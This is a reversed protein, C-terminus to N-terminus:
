VDIFQHILLPYYKKGYVRLQAIAFICSPFTIASIAPTIPFIFRPYEIITAAGILMMIVYLALLCNAAVPSSNYTSSSIAFSSVSGAVLLSIPAMAIAGVPHRPCRNCCRTSTAPLPAASRNNVHYTSYYKIMVPLVFLLWGMAGVCWIAPATRSCEDVARCTTSAVTIGVLPVFFGAHILSYLSSAGALVQRLLVIGFAVYFVCHGCLGIVRRM